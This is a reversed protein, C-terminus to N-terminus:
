VMKGRTKGRQACGDARKSASGGKAMKVCGGKKMGMTTRTTPAMDEKVRMAADAAEQLAQPSPMTRESRVTDTKTDRVERTGTKPTVKMAKEAQQQRALLEEYKGM